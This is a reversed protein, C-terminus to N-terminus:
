ERLQPGGCKSTLASGSTCLRRDVIEEEPTGKVLDHLELDSYYAEDGIRV